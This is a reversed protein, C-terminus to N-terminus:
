TRKCGTLATLEAPCAVEYWEVSPNGVNGYWDFRFRCGDRFSAPLQDCMEKRTFGGYQDGM